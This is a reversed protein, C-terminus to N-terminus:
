SILGHPDILYKVPEGQSFKKYAEPAEDLSIIKVNLEKAIECKENLITEMLKRHYRMVPTQGMSVSLAKAWCDGFKLKYTGRKEEENRAGADENVYVGPISIFGGARALEIISDIVVTPDNEHMKNGYGVAEFGVCDIAVDVESKDLIKEVERKLDQENSLFTLDVTDYGNVKALKLREKNIDGIIIKAAGLIKCSLACALGVPGAGAIYVKSGVEVCANYAAHFGTPFVDTILALDKIKDSSLIQEPLKLLNFDAYPVMIYEAQGGQWDGMNAYGYAAGYGTKNTTLCVNVKQEKCNRCRGCAVNFPVSVLDGEKLFEVDKGCEIVQGTIEHGFSTGAPVVARGHYMHLDSGCIGSLVVKLIVGHEISKGKIEMKPYGIDKVEVQGPKVYVVARNKSM